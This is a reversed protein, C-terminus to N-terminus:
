EVGLKRDVAHEGPHGRQRVAEAGGHREITAAQAAFAENNVAVPDLISRLEIDCQTLVDGYEASAALDNAESPDIEMDFLQSPYGPYCM